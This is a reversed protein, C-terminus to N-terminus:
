DHKMRGMRFRMAIYVLIFYAFMGIVINLIKDRESLNTSVFSGIVIVGVVVNSINMM